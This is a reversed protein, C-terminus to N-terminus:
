QQSVEEKQIPGENSLKRYKDITDLTAISRSSQAFAEFADLTLPYFPQGAADAEWKHLFETLARRMDERRANAIYAIQGKDTNREFIFIAVGMGDPMIAEVADAAPRLRQEATRMTNSKM